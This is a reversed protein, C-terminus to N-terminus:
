RTSGAKYVEVTGEGLFVEEEHATEAYAHVQYTGSESNYLNMNVKSFYEGKENPKLYIWQIDSQDEQKWVAAKVADIDDADGTINKVWVGFSNSTINYSEIEFNATHRQKLAETDEDVSELDELFKSNRSLEMNEKEVGYIETLTQEDSFLNTGLGLRNGEIKVGLAALTTPFADFTSFERKGGGANADANIYTTYVKREYDSDIDECFDSDMTPHDGSIVITTNEYFDQQQIWKVFEAVQRSSCAMVNAYQNDGFEDDCFDCVYGDEFHTDVTLLTLNFPEEQGALQELREKAFSFLKQDEFGWWVKYDEPIWNNDIAYNYDLIDYHGHDTFYLERGGFVAESGLMLTQSYGENELIDGLTVLGSFFSDQTDMDNGDIAINLPLGSTQAFMAGMTWTSGGLSYGGNIRQDTGSFDENEEALETLEPIVNNDFAGGNKKDAYTTEMSELFIYILNRKKVPFTIKTTGPDAYLTDIFVSNEMKNAIYESIDLKEWAQYVSFGDVCIALVLSGFLLVRFTKKRKRTLTMGVIILLSILITPLLAVKIYETVMSENTGELPVQLHYVLEEMSLNAWTKLMWHISFTLLLALVVVLVLVIIGLKKIVKRLKKM